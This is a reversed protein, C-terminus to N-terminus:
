PADWPPIQVNGLQLLRNGGRIVVKAAPSGTVGEIVAGGEEKNADIFVLDFLAEGVTHMAQLTTADPGIRVEVKDALGARALNRRSVEAHHPELEM